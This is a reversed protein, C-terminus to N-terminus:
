SVALCRRLVDRVENVEGVARRIQVSGDAAPEPSQLRTDELWRLLELDTAATEGKGAPEDIPLRATAAVPSAGRDVQQQLSNCEIDAPVLLLLGSPLSAVNDRIQAVAMRYLEADDILHGAELEALYGQLVARLEYGKGAVEFRDDTLAKIDLGALRIAVVASYIAESLGARRLSPWISSDARGCATSM